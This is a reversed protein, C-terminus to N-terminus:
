CTNHDSEQYFLPCMSCLVVDVFRTKFSVVVALVPPVVYTHDVHPRMPFLIVNTGKECFVLNSLGAGHAGIVLSASQFMAAQELVSEDKHQALPPPHYHTTSTLPAYYHHTTAPLPPSHRHTTCTHTTVIQPPPYHTTTTPPLSHYIHARHRHTTTLLPHHHHTAIPPPPSHRMKPTTPPCSDLKRVHSRWASSGSLGISFSLRFFYIFYIIFIFKSHSSEGGTHVVLRDAGLADQLRNVLDDENAIVRVGARRSVYVARRRTKVRAKFSSPTYQSLSRATRTPLFLIQESGQRTKM